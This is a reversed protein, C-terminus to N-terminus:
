DRHTKCSEGMYFANRQNWIVWCQVLFLELEEGSIRDMLEELLQVMDVQSTARKQMGINSSAWIDQAVGCEWLCHLVSEAGQKCLGCRNDDTIKRRALNEGTPLIDHCVRWAFIKIKNSVRCKWLKKWIWDRDNRGSSGELGDVEQSLLRAMHYGSKVM